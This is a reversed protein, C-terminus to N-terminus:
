HENHTEESIWGFGMGTNAGIGSTLAVLLDEEPGSLIFPVVIGPLFFTNGTDDGSTRKQGRIPLSRVIEGGNMRVYTNNPIFELSFPRGFRKSMTENLRKSYFEGTTTLAKARGSDKKSLVRIPTNTFCSIASVKKPLSEFSLRSKRLDLGAGPTMTPEILDEVKIQEIAKTIVPDCSGVWVRDIRYLGSGVKHILAGWGYKSPTNNERAYGYKHLCADIINKVCDIGAVANKSNRDIDIKLRIM